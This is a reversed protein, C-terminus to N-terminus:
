GTTGAGCRTMVRPPLLADVVSDSLRNVVASLSTSLSFLQASLSARVGGAGLEDAMALVADLLASGAAAEPVWEAAGDGLLLISQLTGSLREPDIGCVALGNDDTWVIAGDHDM